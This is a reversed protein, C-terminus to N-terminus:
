LVSAAVSGLRACGLAAEVWEEEDGPGPGEACAAVVEEAAAGSGGRSRCDDRRGRRERAAVLAEDGQPEGLDLVDVVVGLAEAELQRLLVLHRTQM